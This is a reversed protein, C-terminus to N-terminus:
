SVAALEYGNIRNETGALRIGIFAGRANGRGPSEIFASIGPYRSCLFAILRGTNYAPVHLGSETRVGAVGDRTLCGRSRSTCHWITGLISEIPNSTRIGQWHRALYDYFALLNGRDKQLCEVAKPYKAECTQVFLDSASQANDRTDAQWIDHLSQKARPQLSKPLKNLINATKCALRALLSQPLLTSNAHM